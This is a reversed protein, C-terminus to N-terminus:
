QSLIREVSRAVARLDSRESLFGDAGLRRLRRQVLKNTVGNFIVIRTAPALKKLRRILGWVGGSPLPECKVNVVVADMHRESLIEEATQLGLAVECELGSESLMDRLEDIAHRDHEVLLLRRNIARGTPAAM